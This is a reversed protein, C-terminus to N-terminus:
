EKKYSSYLEMARREESINLLAADDIQKRKFIRVSDLLPIHKWFKKWNHQRKCVFLMPIVFLPLYALLVLIGSAFSKLDRHDKNTWTWMYITISNIAVLTCFFYSDLKNHWTSKYPQVWSHLSLMLILLAQVLTYFMMMSRSYSLVLLILCRYSFYLGAFYRHEDKFCSQFSDFFPRFKELPVVKCLITIFKSEHIHFIRFMKYCLPYVFLLIPPLIIIPFVALFIPIAMALHTGELYKMEGNYLLVKKYFKLDKGYVRVPLLLLLTVKTCQFYCLCLFSSLGHLM